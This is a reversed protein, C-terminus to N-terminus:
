QSSRVYDLNEYPTWNSETLGLGPDSIMLNEFGTYHIDRIEGNADLFVKLHTTEWMYKTARAAKECSAMFAAHFSPQNQYRPDNYRNVCDTLAQAVRQPDTNDDIGHVNSTTFGERIKAAADQGVQVVEEASLIRPKSADSTATPAELVATASPMAVLTATAETKNGTTKPSEPNSKSGGGCASIALASGILITSGIIGTKRDASM